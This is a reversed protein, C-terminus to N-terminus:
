VEGGKKNVYEDWVPTRKMCELTIIFELLKTTTMPTALYKAYNDLTKKLKTTISV